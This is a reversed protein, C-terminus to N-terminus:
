VLRTAHIAALAHRAIVQSNPESEIEAIIGLASLAIELPRPRYPKGEKEAATIRPNILTIRPKFKEMNGEVDIVGGVVHMGKSRRILSLGDVNAIHRAFERIGMAKGAATKARRRFDGYWYRVSDCRAGYSKEAPTVREAVWECVEIFNKSM